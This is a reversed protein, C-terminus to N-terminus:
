KKKTKKKPVQEEEINDKGEMYAIKMLNMNEKSKEKHDVIPKPYDKGIICGAKKQVYEPAEWPEFIFEKPFNKLIPVYKRIYDGNKDTKKGFEVPSYVRFYQYFFCSASLWMWNAANLSWDADLLLEEFVEKGKEWSIYLDGRTLFCAVAHRALHHIWGETRLQTMIADIFPFGTQANRWRKLHDENDVWNIQKCIPNGKMKDFNPTFAAALYFFERWILQGLLSVPPSSHKKSRKYVKSIEFYFLRVSLCGFKLYPSLVTTSPLLSNPSTNPKEFNAIYYENNLYRKMRELAETEGGPYLLPGCLSEDKDIEKMSPVRYAEFDFDKPRCFGKPVPLPEKPEGVKQMLNLFSTYTLCIKGGNSAYLFELDYLTHGSEKLVKVGKERCLEDVGEDRRIAYPESDREYALYSINWEKIKESLIQKPEGRLIILGSNLSKLQSNLDSLSQLLFRWRNPCVLSSRLFFPDLIFIPYLPLSPSLLHLSPNDHVRLSKRFWYISSM